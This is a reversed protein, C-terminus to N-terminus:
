KMSLQTDMAMALPRVQAIDAAANQLRVDFVYKGNKSLAVIEAFSGDMMPPGVTIETSKKGISDTAFISASPNATMEADVAQTFATTDGCAVHFIGGSSSPLSWMCPLAGAEMYGTAMPQLSMLQSASLVDGCTLGSVSCSGGGSSGCGIATSFLLAVASLTITRM